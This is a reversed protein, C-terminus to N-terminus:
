NAVVLNRNTQSSNIVVMAVRETAHGPLGSVSGTVTVNMGDALPSAAVDTVNGQYLVQTGTAFTVNLTSGTPSTLTMGTASLNSVTGYFGPAATVTPPSPPTYPVPASNMAATGAPGTINSGAPNSSCGVAIFALTLLGVALFKHM